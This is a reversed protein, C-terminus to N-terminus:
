KLNDVIKNLRSTIYRLEELDVRKKPNLVSDIMFESVNGYGTDKALKEIEKKQKVNTRLHIREIKTM